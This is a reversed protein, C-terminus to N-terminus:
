AVLFAVGILVAATAWVVAIQKMAERRAAREIDLATGVLDVVAGFLGFAAGMWGGDRGSSGSFLGLAHDIVSSQAAEKVEDIILFTAIGAASLIALVSIWFLM